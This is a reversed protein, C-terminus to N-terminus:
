KKRNRLRGAALLLRDGQGAILLGFTGPEPVGSRIWCQKFRLANTSNATFSLTGSSTPVTFTGIGNAIPASVPGLSSQLNYTMGQSLIM